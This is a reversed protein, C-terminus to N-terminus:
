LTEINCILNNLVSLQSYESRVYTFLETQFMIKFYKVRAYILAAVLDCYNTVHLKGFQGFGLQFCRRGYISYEHPVIDLSNQLTKPSCISFDDIYFKFNFLM